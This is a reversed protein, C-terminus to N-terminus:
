GDSEASKGSALVLVRRSIGPPLPLLYVRGLPLLESELSSNRSFKQQSYVGWASSVASQMQQLNALILNPVKHLVDLVCLPVGGVHAKSSLAFVECCVGV